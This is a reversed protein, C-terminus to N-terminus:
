QTDIFLNKVNIICWNGDARNKDSNGTYSGAGNDFIHLKRELATNLYFGVYIMLWQAARPGWLFIKLQELDSTIFIKNVSM